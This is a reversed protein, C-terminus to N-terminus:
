LWFQFMYYSKLWFYLNNNKFKDLISVYFYFFQYLFTLLLLIFLINHFLVKKKGKLREELSLIILASSFIFLWSFDNTYRALIGAMETDAIVILLGSFICLLCTVFIIKNNKYKKLKLVLLNFVTMISSFLLGGYMPEYITVGLYNNNFTIESIYPFVSSINLPAFIYMYIGLPIRELVFGRKTMDNTTLNYNAGFDFPSNFRIYNYYMLFSAVIIYPLLINVVNKIYIKKNALKSEKFYLIFIPIIFLSGLLLQPRCGAVIAMCLSGFFFKLNIFKNSKLVSIWINLGLFVFVLGSLIPVSYIHTFRLFYLSGTCNMLAILLLIFVGLSTNKFYKKVIQNFLISILIIMAISLISVLFSTSLNINFLLKLPIYFLVVPAVGFYCYYHGNYFATDWLYNKGNKEFIYDRYNKDYPNKLESLISESNQSDVIYPKGSLISDTLRNYLNFESTNISLLNKYSFTVYLLVNILVISIFVLKSFKFNNIKLKYIKSNFRFIYIFILFLFTIVFRILSFDFPIKYNIIIDEIDINDGKECTIEFKIKNSKGSFHYNLVTSNKIKNHVQRSNTREYLKNAEDTFYTSIYFSDRKDNTINFYVNKININLNEIEIFYTDDNCLYNNSSKKEANTVNYKDVKYPKYNLTKFTNYNFIFVELFISVLFINLIVLKKKIYLKKKIFLFLYTIFIIFGFLLIIM